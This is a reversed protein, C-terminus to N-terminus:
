EGDQTHTQTLIHKHSHTHANTHTDTHTLTDTHTHRRSHRHTHIHRHSHTHTHTRVHACESMSTLPYHGQRDREREKKNNAVMVCVLSAKLNRLIRSDAKGM